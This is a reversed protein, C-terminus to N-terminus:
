QDDLAGGLMRFIEDLRAQYRRAIAAASFNDHVNRWAAEAKRARAAPDDYVARLQRAASAIDPEAWKQGPLVFIYDDPELAVETYDVLWATDESCFDMNGSYATCVVPVRLNMAEIMGFGWGESKHLSVYCDCGKKLRLLDDYTLTEELIVIRPEDRMLEDLEKWIRTQVPDTVKRRNQTKIVLRVDKEVPFAALFAKLTGIPNKRQIFSFSDFAVLFVFEQGAFGFRACLQRRADDRDIEPLEEYCMGVNVVPKETHPQYIQVGYETAVWIEDLMDLALYHCAAPSDLEWYFYGINYAGSFVDPEYAFALPILEANLQVLNVRARRYGSLAGVHSFGVPAPNDLGFDVSNVSYSTGAMITASLRTAQGLGSAKKFPGIVQVDVPATDPVAPLMAAHLRDGSETFCTFALSDLDFGNHRLLRAYFARDVPPMEVGLEALFGDFASRGAADPALLADRTDAPLYRLFDPRQAAMVLVCLALRRRDEERNMDLASFAPNEAHLRVMFQSLPVAMGRWSPHPEALLAVYSQPVLCDECYLARAHNVSWWYIAWIVWDPNDFDMSHLIPPVDRLFAWTARTFSTKQGPILVPENFFALMDRSMPVRLGQRLPSYGALYWKLFHAADSPDEAPRYTADLKYRYRVYDAYAFMPTPLASGDRPDRTGFMRAPGVLPARRAFADPHATVTQALDRLRRIDGALAAPLRGAGVLVTEALEAETFVLHQAAIRCRGLCAEGQDLLRVEVTGNSNAAIMRLSMTDLPISFGSDGRGIGAAELDARYVNATGQALLGGSSYVGIRLHQGTTRVPAVWGVLAGDRFGEVHGRFGKARNILSRVKGSLMDGWQM